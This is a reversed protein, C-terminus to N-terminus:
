ECASLLVKESAAFVQRDCQQFQCRNVMNVFSDNKETDLFVIQNNLHKFDVYASSFTAIMVKPALPYYVITSPNALGNHYPMPDGTKGNLLMVPNDSTIFENEGIIRFLMWIHSAEIYHAISKLREPNTMVNAYISKRMEPPPYFEKVFKDREPNGTNGFLQQAEALTKPIIRESLKDIYKRATRGRYMQYIMLVALPAKYPALVATRDRTMCSQATWIVKSGTKSQMPEIQKSYFDEWVMQDTAGDLTYFDREVAVNGGNTYIAKGTSKDYMYLYFERKKEVTAFNKLYVKPVTHQRDKKQM